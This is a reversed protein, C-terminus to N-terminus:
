VTVCIEHDATMGTLDVAALKLINCLFGIDESLRTRQLRVHARDCSLMMTHIRSFLCMCSCVHACVPACAHVYVCVCVCVCVCMYRRRRAAGVQNHPRQTLCLEGGTLEPM